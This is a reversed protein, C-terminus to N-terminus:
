NSSRSRPKQHVKRHVKQHLWLIAMVCEAKFQRTSDEGLAIQPLLTYSTM